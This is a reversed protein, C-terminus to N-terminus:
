TECRRWVLATSTARVSLAIYRMPTSSWPTGEPPPREDVRGPCATGGGPLGTDGGAPPRRAAGPNPGSGVPTSGVITASTGELEMMMTVSRFVQFVSSVTIRRSSWRRGCTSMLAVTTSTEERSDNSRPTSSAFSLSGAPLVTPIPRVLKSRVERITSGTVPTGVSTGTSVGPM